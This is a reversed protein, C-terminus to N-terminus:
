AVRGEIFEILDSKKIRVFKTGVVVAPLLNCKVWNYVTSPDCKLFDAVEAVTLIPPLTLYTECANMVEKAQEAKKTQEANQLTSKKKNM